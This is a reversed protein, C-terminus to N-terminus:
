KSTTTTPPPPLATAWSGPPVPPLVMSHMDLEAAPPNTDPRKPIQGYKALLDAVRQLRVPDDTLPYTPLVMLGATQADVGIHQVAAQEVLNRDAKADTVGHLLARRFAATTKPNADVFKKTAVWGSWPFDATAGTFPDLLVGLGNQKGGQTKSPESIVAADLNGNQVNAPMDTIAFSVFKVQDATIGQLALQDTMAMESIGKPSSIAIKKGVLGHADKISSDKGVMCVAYGPATEAADAVIKLEHIHKAEPTIANPYSMLGIDLDGAQLKDVSESGKNVVQLDIDLGEAKFYGKDIAINLPLADTLRLEGVHITSKEVKDNAKADSQSSGLVGCGTLFTALALVICMPALPRIHLSQRM